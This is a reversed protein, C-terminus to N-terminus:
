LGQEERPMEIKIFWIFVIYVGLASFELCQRKKDRMEWKEREEVVLYVLLQRYSSHGPKVGNWDNIVQTIQFFNRSM